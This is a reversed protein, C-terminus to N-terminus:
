EWRRGTAARWPWDEESSTWSWGSGMWSCLMRTCASRAAIEAEEEGARRVRGRAEARSRGCAAGLRKVAPWPPPLAWSSKSRPKSPPKPVSTAMATSPMGTLRTEWPWPCPYASRL